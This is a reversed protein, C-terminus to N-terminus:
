VGCRRETDGVIHRFELTQQTCLVWQFLMIPNGATFNGAVGYMLHQTTNAVEGGFGGL